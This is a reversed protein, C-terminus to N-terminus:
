SMMRMRAEVRRNSAATTDALFAAGDDDDDDDSSFGATRAVDDNVICDADDVDVDADNAATTVEDEDARVPTTLLLSMEIGLPPSLSEEKPSKSRKFIPDYKASQYM